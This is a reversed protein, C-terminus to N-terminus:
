KFHKIILDKLKAVQEELSTLREDVKGGCPNKDHCTGIYIVNKM